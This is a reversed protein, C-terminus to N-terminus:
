RSRTRGRPPPHPTSCPVLRPSLASARGSAADVTVTIPATTLVAKGQRVRVGAIILAGAREARLTLQRITTRLEKGAGAGLAVDTVEHTGVIAFGTLSPLTFTLPQASHTQARVTLVLQDGVTLRARDVAATVVPTSGQLLAVLLLALM